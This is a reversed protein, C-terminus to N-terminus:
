AKRNQEVVALCRVCIHHSIILINNWSSKIGLYGQGAPVWDIDLASTM